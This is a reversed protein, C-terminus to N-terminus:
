LLAALLVAIIGAIFVGDFTGAGGISAVPAGLRRVKGLNTLDAGVLTGLTGGVYALGAIAVPHLLVATLVAFLGPLLMPVAIGLRPVPRAVLHVAVAVIAVAALAQWGLRDHVILYASLAAPILAGGLNVALVTARSRLVPVVYRIGFATVYSEMRVARDRFRAVPINVAGGLLSAILVLAAAQPGIGLRALAYTFAGVLLFSVLVVAIAVAALLFPGALPWYVFPPRTVRRRMQAGRTTGPGRRSGRASGYGHRRRSDITWAV